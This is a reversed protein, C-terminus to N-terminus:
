YRFHKVVEMKGRAGDRDRWSMDRVAKNEYGLWQKESEDIECHRKVVLREIIFGDKNNIKSKQHIGKNAKIQELTTYPYTETIVERSNNTSGDRRTYITESKYSGGAKVWKECAKEAQEMSQYKCGVLGLLLLFVSLKKM